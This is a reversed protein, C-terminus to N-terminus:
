CYCEESIDQHFEECSEGECLPGKRPECHADRIAASAKEYFDKSFGLIGHVARTHDGVKKLVEEETRACVTYECGLGIDKCNFKKDM